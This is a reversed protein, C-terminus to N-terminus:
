EQVLPERQEALVQRALPVRLVQQGKLVLEQPVLLEQRELLVLEQPVLLELVRLEPPAPYVQEQLVPPVLCAMREPQDKFELQVLELQALPVQLVRHAAQQVLRVLPVQQVMLALLVQRVLSVLGLPERQAQQATL